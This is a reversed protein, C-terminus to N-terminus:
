RVSCTARPGLVPRWGVTMTVGVALVVVLVGAGYGAVKVLRRTWKGAM